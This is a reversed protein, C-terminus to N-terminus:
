IHIYMYIYIYICIYICIYTSIHIYLSIDRPELGYVVLLAPENAHAHAHADALTRTHTRMRTRVLTWAFDLLAADGKATVHMKALAREQPVRTSYGSCRHYLSSYQRKLSYWSTGQVM